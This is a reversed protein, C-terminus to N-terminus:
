YVLDDHLWVRGRRYWLRAFIVGDGEPVVAATTEDPARPGSDFRDRAGPSTGLVLRWEVVGRADSALRFGIGAAGESLRLLQPPPVSQRFRALVTRERDISRANDQDITGAALGRLSVRPSSFLPVRVGPGYAMITRFGSALDKYGHSFRFAARTTPDEPAHDCGFNHGLEHAMAYTSDICSREVVSYSWDAFAAGDDGLSYSIGCGDREEVVLQVFDAGVADRLARVEDLAGDNDRQLIELDSEARGAEQYPVEQLEVLRLRTAIGSRELALNTEAVGLHVLSEIADTGGAAMRASPTYVVLVDLTTGDDASALASRAEEVRDPDTSLPQRDPPEAASQVEEIRFLGGASRIRFQGSSLRLSASVAKRTVSLVISSSEDEAAHGVWVFSEPGFSVLADRDAEVVVDPFPELHVRAERFGTSDISAIRGRVVDQVSPPLDASGFARFALLPLAVLLPQLGM